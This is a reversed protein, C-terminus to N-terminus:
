RVAPFAEPRSAKGPVHSGSELKRILGDIEAVDRGIYGKYAKLFGLCEETEGKALFAEALHLAVDIRRGDIELSKGFMRKAEDYAGEELHIVGLGDYPFSNAPNTRISAQFNVKAKEIESKQYLSVGLNNHYKSYTNFVVKSYPSFKKAKDLYQIANEFEKNVIYYESLSVYGLIFREDYAISAKLFTETNKWAAGKAFTWGSYWLVLAILLANKLYSNGLSSFTFEVVIVVFALSPLNLAKEAALYEALGGLNFSPLCFVFFWVIWFANFKRKRAMYFLLAVLAFIAFFGLFMEISLSQFMGKRYLYVPALGDPVVLIKLYKWVIYGIGNVWELLSLKGGPLWGVVSYRIFLYLVAVLYFFLLQIMRSRYFERKILVYFTLILPLVIAIEQFLLAVCYLLLPLYKKNKLFFLFSLVIFISVYLYSDSYTWYVVEARVPIIAFLLASFFSVRKDHNLQMLLSFVLCCLASNLLVNLLKYAFPHQGFLSYLVFHTVGLLPRYYSLSPGESTAFGEFFFRKVEGADKIRPDNLLVAADWVFDHGLSRVYVLFSLAFLLFYIKGQNREDEFFALM